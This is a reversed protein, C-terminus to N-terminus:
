DTENVNSFFSGTINEPTVNMLIPAEMVSFKVLFLILVWINVGSATTYAINKTCLHKM